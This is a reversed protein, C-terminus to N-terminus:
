FTTSYTINFQQSYHPVDFSTTGDSTRVRLLDKDLNLRTQVGIGLGKWINYLVNVTWDVDLGKDRHLYDYYLDLGTTLVLKDELYKNSYQTRLNSGLQLGIADGKLTLSDFNNGYLSKKTTPDYLNAIDQDAVIYLKLSAPSYFVWWHQDHVYDIGPGFGLQAPALFKSIPAADDTPKNLLNGAYTPTLQTRFDLLGSVYWKGENDIQYGAKSNLSLEDINKTFPIIDDPNLKRGVRQVDYRIGANNTWLFRGQKYNAFAGTNGGVGLKNDGGSAFPNSILLHLLNLGLSGGTAWGEPTESSTKKLKDAEDKSPQAFAATTAFLAVFLLLLTSKNFM